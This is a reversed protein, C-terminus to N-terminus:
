LMLSSSSLFKNINNRNERLFRTCAREFPRGFVPLANTLFVIVAVNEERRRHRRTFRVRAHSFNARSHHMRIMRLTRVFRRSAYPLPRCRVRTDSCKLRNGSRHWVYPLFPSCFLVLANCLWAGENDGLLSLRFCGFLQSLSVARSHSKRCMERGQMSTSLALRWLTTFAMCIIWKVMKALGVLAGLRNPIFASHSLPFSTSIRPSSIAFHANCM